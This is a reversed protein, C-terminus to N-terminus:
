PSAIARHAAISLAGALAHAPVVGTLRLRVGLAARAAVAGCRGCGLGIPVFVLDLDPVARFRKLQNRWGQSPTQFEWGRGLWAELAPL